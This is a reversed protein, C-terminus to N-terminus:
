ERSRCWGTAADARGCAVPGPGANAEGKGVRPGKEEARNRVRLTPRRAAAVDGEQLVPPRSNRTFRHPAPERPVRSLHPSVPLHQTCCLQRRTTDPASATPARGRTIVTASLLWVAAVAADPDEPCVWTRVTPPVPRVGASDDHWSPLPTWCTTWTVNSLTWKKRSLGLTGESRSIIRWRRLKMSFFPVIIDFLWVGSM